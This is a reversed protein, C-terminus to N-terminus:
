EIRVRFVLQFGSNGALSAKPNIRLHTVAPDVGNADPTPVYVWTAGGNNSFDVDDTTSALSTFTYTLGSTLAAFAVPGSGAGGLDSVFLDTNAPVSDVLFVTDADVVIAATNSAVITYAVFAGPIAKPNTPGNFPDSQVLSSKVLTLGASVTLSATNSAAGAVSTEASLVGSTTNDHTGITSSTVRVTITCSGPSGGPISGATVNFTAGGATATHVVGACSGGVVLPTANVVGAPYIDTFSIGTLAFANPHSLTLTLVSVGNVGITAPTFTM